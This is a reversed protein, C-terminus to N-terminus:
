SAHAREALAQIDKAELVSQSAGFRVSNIMARAVESLRLGPFFLNLLPYFVLLAKYSGKIHRQGPTPKMLSPRFNYVAKFPLRSLANEAKGKVRAWMVKGQESGDTHAGSVHVFVMGPNLRVLTEAFRLPTDYTIATYEPEKMGVSSVGACYFCADYGTLQPEVHTLERFDPLLCESLKPHTHGCSRRAVALVREVAPNELCELLVGEGVMGAAGTIIVMM